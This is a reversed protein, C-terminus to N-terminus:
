HADRPFVVMGPGFSGLVLLWSSGPGCEPMVSLILMVFGALFVWLHSSVTSSIATLLISLNLWMLSLCICMLLSSIAEERDLSTSYWADVSSRGKGTSFVSQPLWSDCWAQPHELRVTAWLRCVTSLVSLPRQGLPTANGETKPIMVMFADLVGDPWVGSEEVLRLIAALGDFWSVPLAQFETWNWGDLSGASACKGAVADCLM